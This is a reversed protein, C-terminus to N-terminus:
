NVVAEIASQSAEWVDAVDGAVVAAILGAGLGIIALAIGYEALDQGATDALLTKLLNM